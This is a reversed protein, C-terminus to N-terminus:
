ASRVSSDNSLDVHHIAMTASLWTSAAAIISDDPVLSAAASSEVNPSVEAVWALILAGARGGDLHDTVDPETGLYLRSMTSVAGWMTHQGVIAQVAPTELIAVAERVSNAIERAAFLTIGGARPILNAALSEAAVRVSEEASPTRGYIPDSSLHNLAGALEIMGPLFDNNRADPGGVPPGDSSGFLRAFLAGREQATFRESRREWFSALLPAGHGPDAQLGGLAFLGALKEVVPLLQAAELESCLYLPSVTRLQAQDGEAGLVPPLDVVGPAAMHAPHVPFIVAEAASILREALGLSGALPSQRTRHASTFSTNM